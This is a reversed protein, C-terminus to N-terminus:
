KISGATLGKVFYRQLFIFVLLVPIMTIISGSTVVEWSTRYRSLYYSTLGVQLTQFRENSNFILAMLFENWTTMFSYVIVTAIGPLSLPLYIRGFVKWESCGDLLASERLSTPISAFSNRMMFTCFPLQFTTYVLVLGFYSNLLGLRQMLGYLPLLLSQFPVMMTALILVFFVNIGRFRLSSFSYGALSSVLLVLGITLGTVIVTNVIYHLFLGDNATLVKHYHELTLERPILQPPYTLIQSTPKLSTVVTWLFPGLFLVGLLLNVVYFGIVTLQRTRVM